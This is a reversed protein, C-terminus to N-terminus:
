GLSLTSVREKLSADCNRPWLLLQQAEFDSQLDTVFRIFCGNVYMKRLLSQKM